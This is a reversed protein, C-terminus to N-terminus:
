PARQQEGGWALLLFVLPESCVLLLPAESRSCCRRRM